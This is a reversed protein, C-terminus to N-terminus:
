NHIVITSLKIIHTGAQSVSCPLDSQCQQGFVKKLNKLSAGVFYALTNKLPTKKPSSSVWAKYPYKVWKIAFLEKFFEM